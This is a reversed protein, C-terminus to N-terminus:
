RKLHFFLEMQVEEAKEQGDIGVQRSKYAGGGVYVNWHNLICEQDLPNFYNLLPM